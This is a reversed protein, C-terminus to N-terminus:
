DRFIVRKAFPDKSRFVNEEDDEEEDDELEEQESERVEDLKQPRQNKALLHSNRAQHVGM